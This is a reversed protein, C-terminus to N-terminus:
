TTTMKVSCRPGGVDLINLDVFQGSATNGRLQCFRSSIKTVRILVVTVAVLAKQSVLFPNFHFLAHGGCNHRLLCASEVRGYVNPTQGPPILWLMIKWVRTKLGIRITSSICFWFRVVLRNDMRQVWHKLVTKKSLLVLILEHSSIWSLERGPILLFMGRAKSATKRKTFGTWCETKQFKPFCTHLFLKPDM